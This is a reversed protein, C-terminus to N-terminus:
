VNRIRKNYVAIDAIVIDVEHDPIDVFVEHNRADFIRGNHAHWPAPSGEILSPIHLGTRTYVKLDDPIELEYDSRSLDEFPDAKVPATGLVIKAQKKKKSKRKKPSSSKHIVRAIGTMNRVQSKINKIVRHDGASSIPFKYTRGDITFVAKNRKGSTDITCKIPAIVSEIAEISEREFRTLRM